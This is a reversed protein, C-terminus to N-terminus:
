RLEDLLERAERLDLAGFGETFRGYIPALLDRGERRKGQGAWLRALSTAARLQFMKAGQREAVDVAARLDAEVEVAGATGTALKVGGLVRLAEAEWTLEGSARIMRLAESATELAADAEGSAGLAAALHVLLIPVFCQWGTRRLEAMGQRALAAGKTADGRAAIATGALMGGFAIYDPIGHHVSVEITDAALAEAADWDRSLMCLLASNGLAQALSFPQTVCRTIAVAEEATRAAGESLGVLWEAIALHFRILSAMEHGTLRIHTERDDEDYRHLAERLRAVAEAPEGCFLRAAGDITWRICLAVRDEIGEAAACIRDVVQAADSWRAAVYYSGFLGRLAHVLRVRDDLEECLECARLFVQESEPVSYGRCARVAVGKSLQVELEALVREASLPMTRLQAVAEDCHAIAELNAFRGIAREAARGWYRVAQAALGAGAYHRALLEPQLEQTQPWREELVAAIRAHLQQRRSKLLTEYAADRVLAHKFSYTAEPPTGRRFVLESSVLRDLADQLESEPRDAVAALLAHSFERGIAAGIQAVDKAPALRDLRALLSDHLSAPIALPPLPGTLEYRDGADTLHGSELMQKTLEEVFLPIGDTKAVIEASVEAPLIKAGVVREVMATGDCRGLRSLSLASVHPQGTWPPNFEPRFTILLLVPLRQTREIALALLEQTTPDIWHVDEYVLLVSQAASLGELQDVLAELTLHKQRQPTLDPLSYRAETPVGLVAAVLPVAPDLKETGRALLAELKDLKAEPPDDREFGAARGLQEILPHLSSTTHYPSCQYFLPIHPEGELRARLEHVLRSKGIGPEGSLLFVQGEGGKAQQWRRLLLSIEEERGVLPTLSAPHRANFRGGGRIEGAVRWVALPEAFGKLRQPGLNDLEFLGGVLRRTMQSIVVTGPKALAQLRAALNPTEGIVSDTDASQRSILDGVVVPGTAVSVRVQLRENIRAALQPIVEVLALGARVGREADDEHAQPYGFYALVGDGLFRAVYGEFCVVAEACAAQYTGIVERLDEPDLRASLETSGVLDCFLVTLQRREAEVPRVPASAAPLVPSGNGTPEPPRLAAIANLLKRRHGVSAVGVAILDDPTLQPLVDADIDQDLFAREYQELGLDRLWAAIDV